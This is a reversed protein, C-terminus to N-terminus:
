PAELALAVFGNHAGCAGAIALVRYSASGVSLLERVKIDVLEEFGVDPASRPRYIWMQAVMTQDDNMYVNALQVRVSALESRADQEIYKVKRLSMFPEHATGGKSVRRAIPQQSHVRSGM